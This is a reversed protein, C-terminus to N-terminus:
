FHYYLPIALRNSCGASDGGQLPPFTPPSMATTCCASYDQEMRVPMPLAHCKMQGHVAANSCQFM